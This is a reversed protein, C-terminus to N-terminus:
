RHDNTWIEAVTGYPFDTCDAIYLRHIVDIYDYMLDRILYGADDVM